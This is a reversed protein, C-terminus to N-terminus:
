ELTVLLSFFLFLFLFHPKLRIWCGPIRLNFVMIDLSGYTPDPGLKSPLKTM